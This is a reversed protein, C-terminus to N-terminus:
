LVAERTLSPFQRNLWDALHDCEAATMGRLTDNQVAAFILDGYIPCGTHYLCTGCFNSDLACEGGRADIYYCLSIGQQAFVEPAEFARLRETVDTQLLGCLTEECLKEIAHQIIRGSAEVRLVYQLM